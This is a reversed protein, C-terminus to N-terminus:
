VKGVYTRGFLGSPRFLLVLILLVFGPVDKYGTSLYRATLAESLGFLLGGVVV